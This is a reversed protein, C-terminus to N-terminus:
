RCGIRQQGGVRADHAVLHQGPEAGICIRSCERSSGAQCAPAAAEHEGVAVGLEDDGAAGEVLLDDARGAPAAAIGVGIGGGVAVGRCRSRSQSQDEPPKPRWAYFSYALGRWPAYDAFFAHVETDTVPRGLEKASSPARGRISMSITAAAWISCSPPPPTHGSAECPSCASACLPPTWRNPRCRRWRPSATRFRAPWGMFLPPAIVSGLSRRLPKRSVAAIREPGPFTAANPTRHPLVIWFLEPHPGVYEQDAGLDHEHDPDGQRYGGLAHLLAANPGAQAAPVHPLSPRAMCFTHFEELALDLQLMRRVRATIEAEETEAASRRGYGEQRGDGCPAAARGTRQDREEVCELVGAERDWRFPLLQHWGHAEITQRLSFDTATAIELVAMVKEGGM